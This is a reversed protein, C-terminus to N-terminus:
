STSTARQREVSQRILRALERTNLDANAALNGEHIRKHLLVDEVVAMPVGRDKVRAFWDVDSAITLRTNFGGVEDFLETRALLTGPIRILRPADFLERRFGRPMACGPELFFRVQAIAFGAAEQLRLHDIQARLKDATWLDDHDLFAILRGRAAALGTNWADALGRGSQPICRAEPYSRLIDATGDTSHGDVVIVEFAPYDQAYVSDLGAKLFREGNRVAMIVSVLPCAAARSMLGTM